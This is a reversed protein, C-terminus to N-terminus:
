KLVLSWLGVFDSGRRLKGSTLKAKLFIHSTQFGFEFHLNVCTVANTILCVLVAAPLASTVFLKGKNTFALEVLM